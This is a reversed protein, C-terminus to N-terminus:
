ELKNLLSHGTMENSKPLGMIELVTPAVDALTDKADIIKSLSFYSSGVASKFLNKKNEKTIYIFPVPNFTHKTEPDQEPNIKVMEEINGHDATIITAGGVRLNVEVIKGVADDVVKIAKGAAIMNGTHSLMDVNAFNVLIFDYNKSEIAKIVTKTIKPAAMVPDKVPNSNRKSPIIKREEGQFPYPSGCNFFSTVHAEKESEAIRLQKENRSSLIEGLTGIVNNKAFAVKVPLKKGYETLTTFWINKLRKTSFFKKLGTDAIMETLQLSRDSRFNFFIVADDNKLLTVKGDNEIVSPPLNFDNFKERYSSAIASNISKFRRGEGETLMLYTSETKKLDGIRDMAYFRGVITSFKGVGTETIKEKVKEILTLADFQGSDVGDTILDLYVNTFNQRHCLEILANLHSTHAHIGGSSVLGLLHLNSRYKKCHEIAGTLAKNHYFSSDAIAESIIELSQPIRRGAAITSHGLRSDGVMGYKGAILNFAQLVKHPYDRWLRNMNQPSNVALANGGWSPSIGWGDLIM